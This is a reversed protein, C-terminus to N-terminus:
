SGALNGPTRKTEKVTIIASRGIITATKRARSLAVYLNSVDTIRDLNAIIVHDYELGKILVTRSVTRALGTRRDTHRLWDRRKALEVQLERGDEQACSNIAGAIEMWAERSHLRAERSEAIAYMAASLCEFNPNLLVSDLAAQTAGLGPRALHSVTRGRDLCSLLPTNIQGYGTFCEKALDALWRAYGDGRMHALTNLQEIMFTGGVDEMTGFAGKLKSSIRRPSEKDPPAVVVVTEGLPRNALAANILEWGQQTAKIFKVGPPASDSIDLQSGPSLRDRLALLWEGLPENYGKWRMPRCPVVLAPFNPLVDSRWDVIPDAFGFIGQLPDGFVACKPIAQILALILGHQLKSCDQYEDVFLHSYSIAMVDRIHRNSVVRTAGEVYTGSDSWSPTEPVVVGSIRSYSRAMEFSFSAITSIVFGSQPVGFETLKRRIANVGAHTHTLVLATGGATEVQKVTTALLWTKGSGAPMEISAPLHALINLDDSM